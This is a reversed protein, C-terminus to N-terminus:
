RGQMTVDYVTVKNHSISGSGSSINQQVDLVYIYQKNSGNSICFM